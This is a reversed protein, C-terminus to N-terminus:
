RKCGRKEALRAIAILEPRYEFHMTDFHYWKGGWIFGHREFIEVIESPIKNVYKPVNGPKGGAWRWYDAFDINLDIAAAFSHVSLRNTGAIPRWNFSGASKIFFKAFRVPLSQLEHKVRNLATAAGHRKTVPLKRGFWDITTLNKQVESKTQGYLHRLLTENRIRGPEVNVVGADFRCKGIPYIQLLSDEIDGQALKEPHTKKKGDDIQLKSGNKLVLVNGNHKAITAPYSNVLIDLKESLSVIEAHATTTATIAISVAFVICCPWKSPISIQTM